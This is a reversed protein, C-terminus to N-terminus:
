TTQGYCMGRNCTKAAFRDYESEWQCLSPLNWYSISRVQDTQRNWLLRPLPKTTSGRGSSTDEHNGRLIAVCKERQHWIERADRLELMVFATLESKTMSELISM